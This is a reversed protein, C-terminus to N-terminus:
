FQFYIFAHNEFSGFLLLTVILLSCAMSRAVVNTGAYRRGTGREIAADVALVILGLIAVRILSSAQQMGRPLSFDGNGIIGLITWVTQLNDARFPLWTLTVIAFVGVVLALKGVALPLGSLRVPSRAGLWRLADEAVMLAGHLVGWLVFTWNAGHWLGSILMTIVINRTRLWRTRNGGMPVYVYDRFWTSLSIHWRRWFDRMGTAFYPRAFNQCMTYGFIQALGIAILSYGAFDGYIQLSFCVLGLVHQLANYFEPQHFRADVVAAANDALGLKLFYGWVVKELGAFREQFPIERPGAQIQPLLDRARVIPGAVLQPFFAVFTAYRMLSREPQKLEGSYLDIGYSLNQFTYFSIGIPLIISLTRQGIEVGLSALAVEASDIFFNYYKFFFLIGLNIGLSVFLFMKKTHRDTADAIKLGCYFDVLTSFALLGCFRYDWYGYFLYSAVLLFPTFVRTRALAMFGASFLTIFLLFNLSTFSM